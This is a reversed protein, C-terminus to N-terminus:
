NHLTTGVVAGALSECNEVASLGASYFDEVDICQGRGNLLLFVKVRRVADFDRNIKICFYGICM